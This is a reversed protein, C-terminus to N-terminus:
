APPAFEALPSALGVITETIQEPALHHDAFALVPHSGVRYSVAAHRLLREDNTDNGFAIYSGDAIGLRRLADHKTVNPGSIDVLGEDPHVHISLTSARLADVVEAATTFLVVKSYTDLEERPVNRALRGADLQRFIRHSPDGSFSYDWEGDILAALGHREILADVVGRENAAIGVTTTRGDSRTFAGNGGILDLHQLDAPLVPLLDRIPRASAFM